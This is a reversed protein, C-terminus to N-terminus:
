AARRPRSRHRRGSEDGRTRSGAPGGSPRRKVKGQSKVAAELLSYFGDLTLGRAQAIIRATSLMPRREGRLMRGLYSRSLGVKRALARVSLGGLIRRRAEPPTLMPTAEM